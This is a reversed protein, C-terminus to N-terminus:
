RSTLTLHGVGMEIDIAWKPGPGTTTYRDGDATWAGETVLRSPGRRVGVEAAVGAPTVLRLNAAGVTVAIAIGEPLTDALFLTLDGAPCAVQVTQVADSLRLDWQNLAGDPASALTDQPLRQEIRLRGHDAVMSPQWEAVNYHIEGQALSEAGGALTLTANGPALTLAAETASAGAPIAPDILFTETPITTLGGFPVKILPNCALAALALAAVVLSFRHKM